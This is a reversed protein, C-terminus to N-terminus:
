KEALRRNSGRSFPIEALQPSHNKSGLPSNWFVTARLLDPDLIGRSHSDRPGATWEPRNGPGTLVSSWNTAPEGFLIVPVAASLRVLPPVRAQEFNGLQWHSIGVALYDGEDVASSHIWASFALLVVVQLLILAWAVIAFGFQRRIQSM